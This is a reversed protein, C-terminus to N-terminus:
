HLSALFDDRESELLEVDFFVSDRLGRWDTIKYRAPFIVQYIPCVLRGPIEFTETPLIPERKVNKKVSGIWIPFPIGTTFFTVITAAVSVVASLDRLNKPETERYREDAMQSRKLEEENQPHWIEVEFTHKLRCIPCVSVDLSVERIKLGYGIRGYSNM